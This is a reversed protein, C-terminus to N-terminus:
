MEKKVQKYKNISRIRQEFEMHIDQLIKGNDQIVVVDVVIIHLM